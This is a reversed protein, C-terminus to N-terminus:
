YTLTTYTRTLMMRIGIPSVSFGQQVSLQSWADSKLLEIDGYLRKVSLVSHSPISTQIHQEALECHNHSTNQADIFIAYSDQSQLHQFITTANDNTTSQLTSNTSIEVDIRSSPQHEKVQKPIRYNSSLPRLRHRIWRFQILTSTPAPSPSLSILLCPSSRLHVVNQRIYNRLPQFNAM